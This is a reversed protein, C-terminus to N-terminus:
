FFCDEFWLINSVIFTFCFHSNPMMGFIICMIFFTSTEYHLRKKLCFLHIFTFFFNVNFICVRFGMTIQLYTSIHDCNFFYWHITTKSGVVHLEMEEYCNIFSMAFLQDTLTIKLWDVLQLVDCISQFIILKCDLIIFEFLNCFKYDVFGDHCSHVFVYAHFITTLSVMGFEFRQSFKILSMVLNVHNTTHSSGDKCSINTKCMHISSIFYNKYVDINLLKAYYWHWLIVNSM